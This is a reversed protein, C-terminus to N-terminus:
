KRYEVTIIKGIDYNAVIAVPNDKESFEQVFLKCNEEHSNKLTGNQLTERVHALTIDRHRRQQKAHLSLHYHGPERPIENM